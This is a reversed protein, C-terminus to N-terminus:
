SGTGACRGSESRCLWARCARHGALRWQAPVLRRGRVHASRRYAGAGPGKGSHGAPKSCGGGAAPASAPLSAQIQALSVQDFGDLGLQAGLRRLIKWGPRAEGAARGAPRIDFRRGELNMFSGETEPWPALPLLVTAVRRLAPNAFSGIAVVSEAEGLARLALAPDDFDLDPDLDWLLYSKRPQELMTRANLGGERPLAGMTVAGATNGGLPLLNLSAGTAEAVWASLTRLWSAQPHAMAAQGVLLVARESDQLAQALKRYNAPDAGEAAGALEAPLAKGAAESVALALAGFEAVMEQPAAIMGDALDFHFNWDLPNLAFM